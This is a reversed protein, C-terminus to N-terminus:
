TTTTTYHPGSLHSSTYMQTVITATNCTWISSFKYVDTDHNNSHQLDLYILVQICRHWSQQQTALGSLHSSTYMQTMITATNCTWISSFKYVDTDHNNSHQLDLYILVQTCRHWSQQQTALGSLHSSTYMQTMITATNCTWISSFKYVDTDHNNSHQLDLYILVQTCRHWSQQQTAFRSLHSSTYMQTMITATNCTWISSFKYVDTDHNNSHQLDLYILVQTCRHWSQQQTALGSLHSSTYMQTMITATNCIWTSSFKYVDTDHNNSNCIRLVALFCKPLPPSWRILNVRGGM